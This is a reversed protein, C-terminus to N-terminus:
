NKNKFFSKYMQFFFPVRSRKERGVEKETIGKETRGAPLVRQLRRM